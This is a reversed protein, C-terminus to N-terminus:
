EDFDEESLSSALGQIFSDSRSSPAAKPAYAGGENAWSGKNLWVAPAKIFNKATGAAATEVAYRRAGELLQEFTAERNKLVRDFCRRADKPDAKKPYAAFWQRFQEDTSAVAAKPLPVLEAGFLGPANSEINGEEIKSHTSHKLEKRNDGVRDRTQGPDTGPRDRTQGPNRDAETGVEDEGGQYESYKCVTIVTIGTGTRTGIMDENKLRNLYRDVKGKSWQWEAALYRVAGVVEGRDLEVVHEGLRQRRPKWAANAILWAWAERETFPQPRFAPHTFIARYFRIYGRDPLPSERGVVAFQRATQIEPM